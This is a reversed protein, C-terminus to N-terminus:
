KCIVNAISGLKYKTNYKAALSELAKVGIEYLEQYNGLLQTTWGFPTMM